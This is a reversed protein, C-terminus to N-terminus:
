HSAQALKARKVRSHARELMEPSIDIGHVAHECRYYALSIGTGVGVELVKGPRKNTVGAAMSRGKFSLMWGFTQDYVPAHRAYSKLISEM